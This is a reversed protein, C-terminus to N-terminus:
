VCVRSNVGAAVPTSTAMGTNTPERPRIATPVRVSRYPPRVINVTTNSAEM